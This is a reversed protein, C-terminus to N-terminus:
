APERTEISRASRRGRRCCTLVALGAALLVFTAPEPLRGGGGGDPACTTAGPATVCVGGNTVTFGSDSFNLFVNSVTLPSTGPATAEFEITVLVGSGNVPTQFGAHADAVGLINGNTNDLFGPVFLTTDGQTFFPSETVGTPTVQLISAGFSLDFQFSTLDVADTISVPITFVAGVGVTASGVSVVPIAQVRAPLAFTALAALALAAGLSRKM